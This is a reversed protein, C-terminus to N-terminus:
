FPSQGQKDIWPHYHDSIAAYSFGVEEARRAYRVLDDPPHEECSLSYGITVMTTGRDHRPEDAVGAELRLRAPGRTGSTREIEIAPQGARRKGTDTSTSFVSMSPCTSDPSGTATSSPKRM